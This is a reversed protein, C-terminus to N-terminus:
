NSEGTIQRKWEDSLKRYEATIIGSVYDNNDAAKTSEFGLNVVDVNTLDFTDIAVSYSDFTQGLPCKCLSGVDIEDVVIEDRWGPINKDLFEIGASVKQSLNTEM